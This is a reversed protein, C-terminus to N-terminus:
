GPHSPNINLDDHLDIDRCSCPYTVGNERRSRKATITPRITPFAAPAIPAAPNLIPFSYLIRLGRSGSSLQSKSASRAPIITPSMTTHAIPSNCSSAMYSFSIVVVLMLYRTTSPSAISIMRKGNTLIYSPVIQIIRHDHAKQTRSPDPSASM